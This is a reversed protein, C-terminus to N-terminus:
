KFDLLSVLGIPNSLFNLFALDVSPFSIMLVYPLKITFGPSSGVGLSPSGYEPHRGYLLLGLFLKRLFGIYFM